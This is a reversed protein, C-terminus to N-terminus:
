FILSLQLIIFSSYLGKKSEYRDMNPWIVNGKTIYRLNKQSKNNKKNLRNNKKEITSIYFDGKNLDHNIDYLDIKNSLLPISTIKNM